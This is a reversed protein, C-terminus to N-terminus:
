VVAFSNKVRHAKHAAAVQDIEVPQQFGSGALHRQRHIGGCAQKIAAFREPHAGAPRHNNGPSNREAFSFQSSIM